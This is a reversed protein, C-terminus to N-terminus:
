RSKWYGPPMDFDMYRHAPLLLRPFGTFIYHLAYILLALYTKGTNSPGVFVTLPRLEISAQALPRFDQVELRVNPQGFQPAASAAPAEHNAM